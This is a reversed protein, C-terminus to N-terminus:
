KHQRRRRKLWMALAIFGPGVPGSGGGIGPSRRGNFAGKNGSPNTKNQDVRYNRVPQSRRQRQAQREKHVRDANRRDIQENEMEAESIVIMSTYDTVLSYEEGLRIVEKVLASDEGKERIEEMIREISSLAWLRELEPNDTDVAPLEATCTWSRAEGSIKAKLEVEVAGTGEYQGFVILQQGQYLNGVTEPTLNKVKAGHFKLKVDHMNEFLIKNKAQIIRGIIDDSDSINMAFGGSDKALRDLLPRNASNGIVFTFLRVDYTKLLRLFDAQQTPGVNAVGDTVLIVGTTRDDDLGHYAMKLGAFFATSGGAQISKVKNLTSQVNAPTATIYGGTFDSAAQNFTVIRFRDEPSM